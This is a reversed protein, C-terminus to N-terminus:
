KYEQCTVTIDGSQLLAMLLEAQADFDISNIDTEVLNVLKEFRQRMKEPDAANKPVFYAELVRCLLEGQAKTGEKQRGLYRMYRLLRDGPLNNNGASLTLTFEASKYDVRAPVQVPVAGMTDIAQTFGADRSNIYKDVPTEALAEVAAKLGKIGGQRLAEELTVGGDLPSKAQPSLPFVAVARRAADVRVLMAFRLEGGNNDAESLLFLASGEYPWARSEEEPATSSPDERGGLIEDLLGDRQMVIFSVVGLLLFIALFGLLFHGAKEMRKKERPKFELDYNPM